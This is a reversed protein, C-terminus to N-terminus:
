TGAGMADSRVLKRNKAKLHKQSCSLMLSNKDAKISGNQL